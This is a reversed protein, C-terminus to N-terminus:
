VLFEILIRMAFAFYVCRIHATGYLCKDWWVVLVDGGGNMQFLKSVAKGLHRRNRDRGCTKSEMRVDKRVEVLLTTGHVWYLRCGHSHSVKM